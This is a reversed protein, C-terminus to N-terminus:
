KCDVFYQRLNFKIKLGWIKSLQDPNLCSWNLYVSLMFSKQAEKRKKMKIWQMKQNNIGKTQCLLACIMKSVTIAFRSLIKGNELSKYLHTAVISTAPRANMIKYKITSSSSSQNPHNHQHQNHHQTITIIIIIIITTIIIYNHDCTDSCVQKRM